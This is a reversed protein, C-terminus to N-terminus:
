SWGHIKSMGNNELIKTEKDEFKNSNDNCISLYMWMNIFTSMITEKTWEKKMFEIAQKIFRTM